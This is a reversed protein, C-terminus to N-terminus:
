QTVVSITTQELQFVAPDESESDHDFPVYRKFTGSYVTKPGQPNGDVDLTQEVIVMAPARGVLPELFVRLPGDRDIDYLRGVTVNTVQKRGGLSVQEAMGGPSYKRETSDSEGGSRSDFTGLERGSVSVTVHVNNELAM